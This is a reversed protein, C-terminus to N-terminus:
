PKTVGLKFVEKMRVNYLHARPEPLQGAFAEALMVRHTMFSFLSVAGAVNREANSGLSVFHIVPRKPGDKLVEGKPTDIKDFPLGEHSIVPPLSSSPKEGYRIYKRIPDFAELLPYENGECYTLYNFAIKGVARQIEPTVEFEQQVTVEGSEPPKLPRWKVVVGQVELLGRIEDSKADGGFVKIGRRWDVEGSQLWTGDRVEAETFHVVEEGEKRRVAIGPVLLSVIKEGAPDARQVFQAGDFDGQEKVRLKLSSYKFKEIEVPQKVGFRYREFGEVSQRNLALDITRGFEQNCEHCIQIVLAGKFKGFGEPIVHERTFPGKSQRCYICTSM